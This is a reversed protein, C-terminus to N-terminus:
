RAVCGCAIKRAITDLLFFLWTLIGLRCTRCKSTALSVKAKKQRLSKARSFDVKAQNRQKRWCLLFSPKFCPHFSNLAFFCDWLPALRCTSCPTFPVLVLGRCAIGCWSRSYSFEHLYQLGALKARHRACVTCRKATEVPMSFIIDGIWADPSGSSTAGQFCCECLTKWFRNDELRQM